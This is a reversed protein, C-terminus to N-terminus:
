CGNRRRTNFGLGDRRSSRPLQSEGRLRVATSVFSAGRATVHLLATAVTLQRRNRDRRRGASLVCGHCRAPGLPALFPTWSSRARLFRGAIQCECFTGPTFELSLNPRHVGLLCSGATMRKRNGWRHAQVWRHPQVLRHCGSPKGQPDHFSSPMTLLARRDGGLIKGRVLSQRAQQPIKWILAPACHSM